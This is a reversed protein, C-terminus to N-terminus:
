TSDDIREQKLNIYMLFWDIIDTRLSLSFSYLNRYNILYQISKNKHTQIPLLHDYSGILLPLFSFIVQEM